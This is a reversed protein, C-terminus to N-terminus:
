KSYNTVTYCNLRFDALCFNSQRTNYWTMRFIVLFFIACM